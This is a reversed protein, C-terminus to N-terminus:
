PYRARSPTLLHGFGLTWFAHLGCVIWRAPTNLASLQALIGVSLLLLNAVFAGGALGRVVTLERRTGALWAIAGFAFDAAGRTQGAFIATPGALSGGAAAAFKPAAFVWVLGSLVVLISFSFATVRDTIRPAHMPLVQQRGPQAPDAAVLVWLFCVAWFIQSSGLLLSGSGRLAAPIESYAALANGLLLGVYVPRLEGQAKRLCFTACGLGILSCSHAQLLHGVFDIEAPTASAFVMFGGRILGVAGLVLAYSSYSTLVWFRQPNAPPNMM